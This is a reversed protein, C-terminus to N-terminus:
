KAEGKYEIFQPGGKKNIEDITMVPSGINYGGEPTDDDLIGNQVKYVKGATHFDGGRVCVVKGNLYPARRIDDSFAWWLDNGSTSGKTWQVKVSQCVRRCVRHCQNQRPCCEVITGVTGKEPYYAPNINHYKGQCIVQEGVKLSMM